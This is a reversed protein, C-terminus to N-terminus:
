LPVTKESIKPCNWYVSSEAFLLAAPLPHELCRANRIQAGRRGGATLGAELLCRRGAGKARGGGSSLAQSHNANDDM